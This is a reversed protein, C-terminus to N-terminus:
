ITKRGQSLRVYCSSSTHAATTHNVELSHNLIYDSLKNSHKDVLSFMEDFKNSKNTTLKSFVLNKYVIAQDLKRVVCLPQELNSIIQDLFVM